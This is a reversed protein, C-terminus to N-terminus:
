APHPAAGARREPDAGDRRAGSEGVDRMEVAAEAAGEAVRREAIRTRALPRARYPSAHSAHVGVDERLARVCRTQVAAPMFQSVLGPREGKWRASGIFIM